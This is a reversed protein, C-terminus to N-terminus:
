LSQKNELERRKSKKGGTQSDWDEIRWELPAVLTSFDFYGHFQDSGNHLVTWLRKLRALPDWAQFHRCIRIACLLASEFVHTDLSGWPYVASGIIPIKSLTRSPMTEDYEFFDASVVSGVRGDDLQRYCATHMKTAWDRLTFDQPGKPPDGNPRLFIKTKHDKTSTALRLANDSYFEFCAARFNSSLVEGLEEQDLSDLKEQFGPTPLSIPTASLWPLIWDPESIAAAKQTNPNPPYTDAKPSNHSTVAAKTNQATPIPTTAEHKELADKEEASADDGTLTSAVRMAALGTEIRQLSSSFCAKLAEEQRETILVM